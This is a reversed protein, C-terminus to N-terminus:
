KKVIAKNYAMYFKPIANDWTLKRLQKQGQSINSDIYNKDYLIKNIKDTMDNIDQPNFTYQPEGITEPLSTVNSCVVPRQLTIAEFLPFSGAEYVTPIVVAKCNLYLSKLEELSVFDLFFVQDNLNHDNIFQEINQYFKNRKGSCVLSIKKGLSDRMVAMSKLLNIHNKHEWTQAPYFIYENPINYKKKLESFDCDETNDFRNDVGLGTVTIKDEDINYFKVIDEKVHNFSVIIGFCDKASKVCYKNRYILDKQSFYEPYYKDQLDHLTIFVPINWKGLPIYQIPFHILDLSAKEVIYKTNLNPFFIKNLCLGSLIFDTIKNVKHNLFIKSFLKQKNSVIHFEINKKDKFAVFFDQYFDENTVVFIQDDKKQLEIFLKEIYQQIGGADAVKIDAYLGIKM